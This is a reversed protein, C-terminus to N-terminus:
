KFENIREIFARMRHKMIYSYTKDHTDDLAEHYVNLIMESLKLPIKDVDILKKNREYKNLVDKDTVFNIDEIFKKTISKQRKSDVLFTDEDSLINPIGDTTDGKILHEQFDYDELKLFLKTRASYQQIKKSYKLQLQILDKDSSIVLIPDTSHFEKAIVSVIDDGEAGRVGVIPFPLNEKFEQIIDALINYYLKWDFNDKAKMKKRNKKYYPFVYERWYPKTDICLIMKGYKVGFKRKYHLISSMAISRIHKHDLPDLKHEQYYGRVATTITSSFDNLIM